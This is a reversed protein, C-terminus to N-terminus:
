DRQVKRREPLMASLEEFDKHLQQQLDDSGEVPCRTMHVDLRLLILALKNRIEHYLDPM